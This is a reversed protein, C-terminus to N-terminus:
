SIKNKQYTTDSENTEGKSSLITDSSNKSESSDPNINKEVPAAIKKLFNNWTTPWNLRVLLALLVLYFTGELPHSIDSLVVIYLQPILYEINAM